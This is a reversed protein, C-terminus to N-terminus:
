LLLLACSINPLPMRRNTLSNLFALIRDLSVRLFLYDYLNRDLHLFLHYHDFFYEKGKFDWRFDNELSFLQYLLFDRNLLYDIYITLHDNLILFDYLLLYDHFLDNLLYDWM